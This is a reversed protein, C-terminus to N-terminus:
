AEGAISLSRLRQGALVAAGATTVALLGAAAMLAVEAHVAPSSALWDLVASRLALGTLLSIGLAATATLGTVRALVWLFTDVSNM